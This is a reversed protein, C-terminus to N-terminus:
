ARGRRRRTRSRVQSDDTSRRGTIRVRRTINAGPDALSGVM